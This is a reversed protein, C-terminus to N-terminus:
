EIISNHFVIVNRFENGMRSWQKSEVLADMECLMLMADDLLAEVFWCIGFYMGCIASM